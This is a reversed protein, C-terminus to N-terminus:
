SQVHVRATTEGNKERRHTNTHTHTHTTHTHTHTHTRARQTHMCAKPQPSENLTCRNQPSEPVLQKTVLLVWQKKLALRKVPLRHWVRGFPLVCRILGRLVLKGLRPVRKERYTDCLTDGCVRTAHPPSRPWLQFDAPKVAAQTGRVRRRIRRSPCCEIAHAFLLARLTSFSVVPMLARIDTTLTCLLVTHAAARSLVVMM